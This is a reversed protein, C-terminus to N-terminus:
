GIHCTLVHSFLAHIYSVTAKISVDLRTSVTHSIHDGTKISIKSKLALHLEGSASPSSGGGSPQGPDPDGPDDGGDHKHDGEDKSGDKEDGRGPMDGPNEKGDENGNGGPIGEGGVLVATSTGTSTGLTNTKFDGLSSVFRFEDTPLDVPIYYPQNRTYVVGPFPAFIGAMTESLAQDNLMPLDGILTLYLEELLIGKQLAAKHFGVQVVYENNIHLASLALQLPEEIKLAHALANNATVYYPTPGKELHLGNDAYTPDSAALLETASQLDGFSQVGSSATATAAATSSPPQLVGAEEGEHLGFDPPQAYGVQHSSTPMSQVQFPGPADKPTQEQMGRLTIDHDRHLHNRLKRRGIIM